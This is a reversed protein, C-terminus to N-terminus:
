NSERLPREGAPEGNHRVLREALRRSACGDWLPPAARPAAEGALRETVCRRLLNLDNGILRNAGMEVTIPRETNKRMTLCPVGLYATEEQVGGSDTIVVAASRELALFQLYGQPPLLRMERSLEFRPLAHLRAATRPHAPFVIPAQRAIDALTAFLAELRQPDDVNSPRHLTALIYRGPTLELERLVRDDAQPLLRVLTDIMVNGVFHIREQPVGERALNTEAEPSSTFLLDSLQDVVVRNIEEPMTRDFSRLGAEVHAIRVGSKAAALAAALTSNVDGYVLLWDPPSAALLEELRLMVEATQRTHSGSGVGLNVDPRPLGLQRFFVESMQDDYHQGTHILRQSVGRRGELAAIVPAAKM